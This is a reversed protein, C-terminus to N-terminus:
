QVREWPFQLTKIMRSEGRERKEALMRKKIGAERGEKRKLTTTSADPIVDRSVRILPWPSMDIRLARGFLRDRFMRDTGYVGCFTEDYGGVRWYLRRSLAFSNVHPKLEGADNLTPAMTSWHDSRWPEIPADRRAFTYVRHGDDIEIRRLTEALTDAPIVHDMDTMLMWKAQAVHAGLNRAGHQNWPRDILVRYVAIPMGVDDVSKVEDIAPEPSGDDVIVVECRAKLAAPWEWKWISLQRWLMRPNRYYPLVISIQM